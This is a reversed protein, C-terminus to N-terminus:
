KENAASALLNEARRRAVVMVSEDAAIQQLVPAIMQIERTRRNRAAQELSALEGNLALKEHKLMHELRAGSELTSSLGLFINQLDDIAQNESWNFTTSSSRKKDKYSLTKKGTFAIRSKTYDFDGDFYRATKTLEFIRELTRQSVTFTRQLDEDRLAADETEESKPDSHSAYSGQGSRDLVIEFHNPAVEPHDFIFTVTPLEKDPGSHGAATTPIDGSGSNQAWSACAGAVLIWLGVFRLARGSGTTMTALSKVAWSCFKRNRAARVFSLQRRSM